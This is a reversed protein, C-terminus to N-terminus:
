ASRVSGSESASNRRPRLRIVKPGPQLLGTRFKPGGLDMVIRCHKGLNENARKVNEIMGLWQEQSDHACNIRAVDMGTTMLDHIIDYDDAAEVPLTVMISVARDEPQDGLLSRAHAELRKEIAPFPARDAASGTIEAGDLKQLALQVALISASVHQEARGLSSLGLAALQEQLEGIDFQRLAVYHLLNRASAAFKAHVQQLDPEFRSELEGARERILQLQQWLSEQDNSM